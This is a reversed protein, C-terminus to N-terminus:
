AGQTLYDTLIKVMVDEDATQLLMFERQPITVTRGRWTTSGGYNHIPAYVLNTGLVVSSGQVQGTISARLRGTDILPKGIRYKLPAWATPRGSVDFNTTISNLAVEQIATLAPLLNGLRGQVEAILREGGSTNLTLRIAM